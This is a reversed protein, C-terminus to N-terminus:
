IQSAYDILAKKVKKYGVKAPAFAKTLDEVTKKIDKDATKELIKQIKTADSSSTAWINGFERTAGPFGELPTAEKSAFDKLEAITENRDKPTKIDEVLGTVIVDVFDTIRSSGHSAGTRAEWLLANFSKAFQKIALPLGALATINDNYKAALNTADYQANAVAKDAALSEDRLSAIQGVARQVVDDHAYPFDISAMETSSSLLSAPNTSSIL